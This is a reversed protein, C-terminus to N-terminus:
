DIWLIKWIMTTNRYNKEKIGLLNYAALLSSLVGSVVDVHWDLRPM